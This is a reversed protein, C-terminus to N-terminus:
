KLGLKRKKALRMKERREEEEILRLQEDDERRALKASRKEERMIDEFNAEMNRDDGDDRFNKPNYGFMQRIMNIPNEGDSDEDHLQRKPKAKPKQDVSTHRAAAPKPPPRRLQDRSEPLAKETMVKPKSTEQYERQVSKRLGSPQGRSPTPKPVGSQPKSPMPKPMPASPAPRYAGGGMANRSVSPTAKGTSTPMHIKKPPVGNPPGISRGMGSSNNSGLQKRSEMLSKSAPPAIREQGVKPKSQNSLLMPKRQGGSPAAERVPNSMVQKGRPPQQPAPGGDELGGFFGTKLASVNRPPQSKLSAPVEADDSLFSYDRANRLIEVKKKLGNTVRPPHDDSSRPKVHDTVSSKNNTHNPKFIRAALDPNELLSKSEQLVRPSIYPESPGFFTGYSDKRFGNIKDRSDVNATGLEKKMQKRISEKLRQRLELYELEEQTPQYTEEEYEDEEYEDEGVEEEEQEEGNEEYAEYGEYEDSEYGGMASFYHCSECIAFGFVSSISSVPADFDPDISFSRLDSLVARYQLYGFDYFLALSHPFQPSLGLSVTHSLAGSLTWGFSWSFCPSISDHAQLSLILLITLGPKRAKAGERCCSYNKLGPRVRTPM